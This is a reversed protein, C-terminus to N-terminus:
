SGDERGALMNFLQDNGGLEVDTEMMVADYGQMIPYMFESIHIPKGEEMRKQFMDRKLMQQVPLNM